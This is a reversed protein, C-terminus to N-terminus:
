LLGLTRAREVAGSRNHASLKTYIGKIHFRVTNVSVILRDAIEQYSLGTAALRLVELERETLQEMPGARTPPPADAGFGELLRNVYGPRGVENCLVGLLDAMPRGEDVFIRLYGGPEAYRVAKSLDALAVDLEHEGKARHALARLALVELAPGLRGAPEAANLLRGALEIATELSFPDGGSTAGRRVLLRLRVIQAAELAYDLENEPGVGASSLVAAAGELDGRRLALSARQVVATWAVWEPMGPQIFPHAGALVEEAGALDGREARVWAAVLYANARAVPHGSREAVEIADSVSEAAEDLNGWQCLIEARQGVIISRIVEVEDSRPGQALEAAAARCHAEARRLEGRQILASTLVLRGRPGIRHRDAASFAAFWREVTRVYGSLVIERTCTELLSAVRSFDGASLAHEIAEISDGQEEFWASARAYLLSVAKPRLRRLQARLLDRFLYHYRYWQHERDLATLFLNAAHLSRLISDGGGRETVADCLPGSLRDLVSTELLFQRVEAPQRALVEESLYTLIHHDSGSLSAVLSRPDERDRMSLAFLQLGAPWGEIRSDLREIDSRDLSIGMNTRLYADTEDLRFRLDEGRVEVLEGRARLAGLPWPPDDRTSIVIHLGVPQHAILASIVQHIIPEDIVHYDDLILTCRYPLAEIANALAAVWSEIAQSAGSPTPLQGLERGATEDMQGVAAAFYAFFRAPDNDSHDLSLWAVHHQLHQIRRAWAGLLATKGFGAPASVLTMKRDPQKDLLDFLRPRSVLQGRAPPVLIKTRLLSQSM